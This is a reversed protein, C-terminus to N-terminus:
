LCAFLAEHDAIEKLAARWAVTDTPDNIGFWDRAIVMRRPTVQAWESPWLYDAASVIWREANVLYAPEQAWATAWQKFWVHDARTFARWKLLRRMMVWRAMWWHIDTSNLPVNAAHFTHNGDFAGMYHFDVTRRLSAVKGVNAAYRWCIPRQIMRREAYYAKRLDKPLRELLITVQKEPSAEVYVPEESPMYGAAWLTQGEHIAAVSAEAETM